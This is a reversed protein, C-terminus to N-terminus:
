FENQFFINIKDTIYLIDAENYRFDVPVFILKEEFLKDENQIQNPWLTAPFILNSILYEKFSEKQKSSNCLFVLGFANENEQSLNFFEKINKLNKYVLQLNQKKALNIQVVNLFFLIGKASEPMAANTLRNDFQNEADILMSRFLNKEIVEGNLYSTKLFMGVIKKISINEAFFNNQSNPIPKNKPSSCFGGVPIPLEKRLSGFCYDANSKYVANFNHTLDDIIVAKKYHNLNLQVLGFYNVNIIVNYQDDSINLTYNPAYFFPNFSYYEIEIPLEKIFHTVEHCYFSPIFVKKWQHLEIGNKLLQFLAVRGSFFLSLNPNNFISNSADKNLFDECTVYNFDSGFEKNM